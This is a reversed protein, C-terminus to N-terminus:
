SRAMGELVRRALEERDSELDARRLRHLVEVTSTVDQKAGHNPEPARLARCLVWLGPVLDLPLDLRGAAYSGLDVVRHHWPRARLGDRALFLKSLMAGDIAPASGVLTAGDLADHLREVETGDDQDRHMIRERYGNVELARPHAVALVLEPDHAPVFCGREGTTTNQWAVEVAFDQEFDLGTTETDVVIVAGV